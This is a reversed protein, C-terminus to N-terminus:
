IFGPGQVIGPDRLEFARGNSNLQFDSRLKNAYQLMVCAM